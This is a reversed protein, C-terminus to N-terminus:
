TVALNSYVPGSAQVVCLLALGTAEAVDVVDHQGHQLQQLVVLSHEVYVYVDVMAVPHLLGEVHRVPHETEGEVSIPLVEERPCTPM